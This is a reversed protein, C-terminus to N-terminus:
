TAYTLTQANSLAANTAYYLWDYWTGSSVPGAGGNVGNWQVLVVPNLRMSTITLPGSLQGRQVNTM